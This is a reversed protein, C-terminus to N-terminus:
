PLAGWCFVAVRGILRSNEHFFSECPVQWLVINVCTGARLVPLRGRKPLTTAEQQPCANRLAGTERGQGNVRWAADGMAAADEAPTIGHASSRSLDYASHDAAGFSCGGRFSEPVRSREGPHVSQFAGNEVAVSPTLRAKPNPWARLNGSLPPM